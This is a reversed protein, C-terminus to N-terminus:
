RRWAGLDRGLLAEVERVTPEYRELLAARTRPDLPGARYRGELRAGIPSRRLAEYTKDRASRPVLDVLRGLGPVSRIAAATRGRTKRDIANAWVPREGVLDRRELGLADLVGAVVPRPDAVLDEFLVFHFSSSPFHELYRALQEPYRGVDFYLDTEAMREEFSAGRLAHKEMAYHSLAREVPHRMLYVLRVDPGVVAALRGPVDPTHPWFTYSTSAEGCLQTPAADAFLGRYWDEGRAFVTDDSFFDPEKPTSLFVDPHRALYQFLTTTGAKAAGIILFDPLRGSSPDGPRSSPLAEQATSTPEM